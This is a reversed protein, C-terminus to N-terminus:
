SKEKLSFTSLIGWHDSPFLTSGPLREKGCTVFSTPDFGHCFIRDFRCKATFTSALNKNISTDWTYRHAAVAGTAEWADVLGDRMTVDDKAGLNMDGGFIWPRTTGALHDFSWQLQRLREVKNERRSELHSTALVVPTSGLKTEVVHLSRRMNSHAFPVQTYKLMPLCKLFIAEGYVKPASCPTIYGADALAHNLYDFMPPRLEQLFVADPQKGIIMVTIAHLRDAM